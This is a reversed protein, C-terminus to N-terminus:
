EFLLLPISAIGFCKSALYNLVTQPFEYELTYTHIQAQGHSHAFGLFYKTHKHTLAM